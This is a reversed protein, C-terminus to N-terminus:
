CADPALKLFPIRILEYGPWVTVQKDPSMSARAASKVGRRAGPDRCAAVPRGPDHPTPAGRPSLPRNGACLDVLDAFEARYAARGTVPTLSAAPPYRPAAMM